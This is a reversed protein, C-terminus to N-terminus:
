FPARRSLVRRLLRRIPSFRPSSLWGAVKLRERLKANEATLEEIRLSKEHWAADLELLRGHEGDLLAQLRQRGERERDAMAEALRAPLDSPAQVFGDFINPPLAFITKLEDDRESALYWANLGDFYRFKYGAGNMFEDLGTDARVPSGPITAEALVIWPRFRDFDAGSLIDAEAGEADIKLFHLVDPAHQECVDKLTTVRVAHMVPSPYGLEQHGTAVDRDLSSLGTGPIRHLTQTGPKSGLAIELNLDRPRAARLAAAYTPEPEINIGNWGRDYFAKTVSGSVPDAAGVDIYYGREIGKFARWLIVDEFNQAYSILSM